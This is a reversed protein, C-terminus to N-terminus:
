EEMPQDGVGLEESCSWASRGIGSGTADTRGTASAVARSEALVHVDVILPGARHGTTSSWRCPLRTSRTTRRSRMSTGYTAPHTHRDHWAMTKGAVFAPRTPVILEASEVDRYRDHLMRRETPWSPYGQSNLLQVRVAIGDSTRITGPTRDTRLDLPPDWVMLGFDRPAPRPLFETLDAVISRRDHIAILDIDESLRGRPLHTRNLATGGFFLLRDALRRSMASLLASILHDREVQMVGVGFLDVVRDRDDPHVTM